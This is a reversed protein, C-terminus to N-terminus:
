DRRKALAQTISNTARGIALIIEAIGHDTLVYLEYAIIVQLVVVAIGLYFLM